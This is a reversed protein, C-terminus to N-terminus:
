PTSSPEPSPNVTSAVGGTTGGSPFAPPEPRPQTEMPTWGSTDFHGASVRIKESVTMTIMSTVTGLGEPSDTFQQQTVTGDTADIWWRRVQTLRRESVTGSNMTGEVRMEWLQTPRGRADVVHADVLKATDSPLQVYPREGPTIEAATTLSVVGNFPTVFRYTDAGLRCEVAQDLATGRSAMQTPYISSGRRVVDYTTGNPYTVTDRWQRGTRDAWLDITSTTARAPNNLPQACQLHVDIMTTYRAHYVEVTSDAADRGRERGAVAALGAVIALALVVAAAVAGVPSRQPTPPRHMALADVSPPMPAADAVEHMARSVEPSWDNSM